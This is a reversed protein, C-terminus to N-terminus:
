MTCGMGTLVADSRSQQAPSLAAYLAALPPELTKLSSLRREMVVVYSRLRDVPNSADLIKMVTGEMGAMQELHARLATAYAQWAPEQEETIGIEKKLFAIREDAFAAMGGMMPCSGIAGTLVGMGRMVHISYESPPEASAVAPLLVFAATAALAFKLSRAIRTM